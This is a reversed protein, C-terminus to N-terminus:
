LHKVLASLPLIGGGGGGGWGGGGRLASQEVFHIRQKRGSEPQGRDLGQAPFM